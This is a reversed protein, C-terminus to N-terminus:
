QKHYKSSYYEHAKYLLKQSPTGANYCCAHVVSKLSYWVVVLSRLDHQTAQNSRYNQSLYGGMGM